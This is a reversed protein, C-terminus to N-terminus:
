STLTSLRSGPRLKCLQVNCPATKGPVAGLILTKIVNEESQVAALATKYDVRAVCTVISTAVSHDAALATKCDGERM